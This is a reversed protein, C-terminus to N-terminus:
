QISKAFKEKVHYINIIRPCFPAITTKLLINLIMKGVSLKQTLISIFPSTFMISLHSIYSQALWRHNTYYWPRVSQSMMSAHLFIKSNLYLVTKAAHCCGNMSENNLIKIPIPFVPFVWVWLSFFSSFMYTSWASFM